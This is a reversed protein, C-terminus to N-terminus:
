ILLIVLMLHCATQMVNNYPYKANYASAPETWAFVGEPTPPEKILEAM